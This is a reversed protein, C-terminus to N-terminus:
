LEGQSLPAHCCSSNNPNEALEQKTQFAGCNTCLMNSYELEEHPPEDPSDLDWPDDLEIDDEQNIFEHSSLQAIDGYEEEPVVDANCCRTMGQDYEANTATKGCDSCVAGWHKENPEWGEGLWEDGFDDLSVNTDALDADYLVENESISLHDVVQKAWEGAHAACYVADMGEKASAICQEAVDHVAAMVAESGYESFIDPYSLQLKWAIAHEIVSSHKMASEKMMAKKLRKGNKCNKCHGKKEPKLVHCDCTCKPDKLAEDLSHFRKQLTKALSNVKADEHLEADKKDEEAKLQNDGGRYNQFMDQPKSLGDSDDVLARWGAMQENPENAWGKDAGNLGQNKRKPSLSENMKKDKKYDLDRKCGDCVLRGDPKRWRAAKKCNKEGGTCQAGPHKIRKMETSEFMDDQMARYEDMDDYCECPTRDCEPCYQGESPCPGDHHTGCMDCWMSNKDADHDYGFSEMFKGEYNCDDADVCKALHEQSMEGDDFDRALALHEGESPV